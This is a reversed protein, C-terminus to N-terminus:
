RKLWAEGMELSIALRRMTTSELMESLQERIVKFDNHLPCPNHEDCYPLGLGCGTYLQDGDICKVIDKLRVRELQEASMDYGGNPGKTSRILSDRTLQQLIKSTFAVPSDIAEAVEKLGTREGRESQMAIHVMARIGYECAKSFM